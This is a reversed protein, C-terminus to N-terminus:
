IIARLKASLSDPLDPLVSFSFSDCDSVTVAYDVVTLDSMDQTM